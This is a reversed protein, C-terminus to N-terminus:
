WGKPIDLVTAAVVQFCIHIADMRTSDEFSNMENYSRVIYEFIKKNSGKGNTVFASVIIPNIEENEFANLLMEFDYTEDYMALLYYHWVQVLSDHFNKNIWVSKSKVENLIVERM